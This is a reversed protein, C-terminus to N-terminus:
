RSGRKERHRQWLWFGGMIAISPLSFGAVGYRRTVAPLLTLAVPLVLSTLVGKLNKGATNPIHKMFFFNFPLWV